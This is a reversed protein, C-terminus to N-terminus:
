VLYSRWESQSVALDSVNKATGHETLGDDEGADRSRYRPPLVGDYNTPMSETILYHQKLKRIHHNGHQSQYTNRLVPGCVEDGWAGALKLEDICWGVAALLSDHVNVVELPLTNGHAHVICIFHTHRSLAAFRTFGSLAYDIVPKACADNLIAKALFIGRTHKFRYSM